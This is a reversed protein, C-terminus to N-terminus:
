IRSIPTGFVVFFTLGQEYSTIFYSWSSSADPRRSTIETKNSDGM